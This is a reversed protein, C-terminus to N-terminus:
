LALLRLLEDARRQGRQRGVVALRQHLLVDLLEGRGLDGRAGALVLLGGFRGQLAGARGERAHERQQRLLAPAVRSRARACGGGVRAASSRAPGARAASGRGARTAT